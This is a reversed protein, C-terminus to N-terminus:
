PTLTDGVSLTVFLNMFFYTHWVLLYYNQTNSQQMIVLYKDLPFLFVSEFPYM